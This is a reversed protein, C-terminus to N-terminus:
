EYSFILLSLLLPFCFFDGLLSPNGIVGKQKPAVRFLPLFLFPQNGSGLPPQFQHGTIGESPGSRPVGYPTGDKSEDAALLHSALHTSCMGVMCVWPNLFGFKEKKAYRPIGSLRKRALMALGQRLVRRLPAAYTEAVTYRSATERNLRCISGTAVLGCPLDSPSSRWALAHKPLHEVPWAATSGDLRFQTEYTRPTNGTSRLFYPRPHAPACSSNQVLVKM